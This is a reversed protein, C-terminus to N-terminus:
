KLAAAADDLDESTSEKAEINIEAEIDKGTGITDPIYMPTNAHPDADGPFQYGLLQAAQVEGLIKALEVLLEAKLTGLQRKIEESNDQVVTTKGASKKPTGVM